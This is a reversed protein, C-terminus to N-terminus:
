SLIFRHDTTFTGQDGPPLRGTGFFDGSEVHFTGANLLYDATEGNVSSFLTFGYSGPLLPCRPVHVSM